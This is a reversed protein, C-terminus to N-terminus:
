GAALIETVVREASAMASEMGFERRRTHEGAFHIRGEPTPLEAAFRAVQGTSYSLGCGGIFPTNGWSHYGMVELQGRSAPRVEALLKLVLRAASEPDYQDIRQSGQGNIWVLLTHVADNGDTLAFVRELQGDSWLSAELGDAEWFPTTPRLYFKTTSYYPVQDTAAAKLPSLTPTFEVQRLAPFPVAAVLFDARYRTGDVCAVEVGGQDQAIAAAAQGFRIENQLTAAMADPLRQNGGAVQSLPAVQQGAEKMAMFARIGFNNRTNDRFLALASSRNMGIGNYTHGMLRIAEESVQQERLLQAMPVDFERFEPSLWDNLEQLPNYRKLLEAQLRAPVINREDGVTLNVDASPWDDAQVLQGRVHYTFPRVSISSPVRELDLRRMMDLVRAYMVGIDSAGLEHLIGGFNRTQVRGGVHDSAELLTVRLGLEELLMASYLGALGAGLVIVEASEAARLVGPALVGAAAVGASRILDRRNLGSPSVDNM